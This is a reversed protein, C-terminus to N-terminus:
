VANTREHSAEKTLAMDGLNVTSYGVDSDGEKELIFLTGEQTCVVDTRRGTSM